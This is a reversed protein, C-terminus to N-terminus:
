KKLLYKNFRRKWIYKFKSYSVCLEKVKSSQNYLVIKDSSVLDSNKAICGNNSLYFSDTKIVDIPTSFSRKQFHAYIFEDKRLGDSTQAIRYVHGNEWYLCESEYDFGDVLLAAPVHSTVRKIHYHWPDIDFFDWSKYTKFGDHNFKQQIGGIEDFVMNIKTSFVKRYNMGFNERFENNVKDVNKYLSLHGFQYIKDYQDLMDDTIFHKINGFVMDLDCHGWFKYGELYERFILGYAPRFDCLKYAQTLEIKFDFLTQARDRVKELTTNVVKLNQLNLNVTDDTLLLFDVDPNFKVSEFFLNSYSPLKGFYPIILCIKNKKM